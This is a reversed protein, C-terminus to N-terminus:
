TRVGILELLEAYKPGAMAKTFIDAKMEKTVCHEVCVHNEPDSVLENLSGICVRQTRPLPRLKKSYGKEVASIAQTNDVRCRIM